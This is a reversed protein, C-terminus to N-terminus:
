DLMAFEGGLRTDWPPAYTPSPRSCRCTGGGSGGDRGGGGWGGCDAWSGVPVWWGCGRVRGVRTRGPRQDERHRRVLRLPQDRLIPQQKVLQDRREGVALELGGEARDVVVVGEVTLPTRRSGGLEAARREDGWWEVAGGNWREVGDRAAQGREAGWVRTPRQGRKGSRRM